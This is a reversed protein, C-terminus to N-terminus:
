GTCANGKTKYRLEAVNNCNSHNNSGTSSRGDWFPRNWNKVKVNRAMIRRCLYSFGDITDFM